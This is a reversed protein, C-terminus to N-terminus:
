QNQELHKYLQYFMIKAQMEMTRQFWVFFIIQSSVGVSFNYSNFNYQYVVVIQFLASICLYVM